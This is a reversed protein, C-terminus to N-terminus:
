RGRSQLLTAFVTSLRARLEDAGIRKDWIDHPRAADSSAARAEAPTGTLVIRHSDPAVRQAHGVVEVGTGDPLHFDALVVDVRQKKFASRAEDVREFFLAELSHQIPLRSLLVRLMARYDEDDEVVVM